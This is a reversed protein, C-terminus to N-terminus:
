IFEPMSTAISHKFKIYFKGGINYIPLPLYDLLNKISCCLFKPNHPETLDHARIEPVYESNLIKVMVYIESSLTILSFLIEGFEYEDIYEGINIVVVDGRKYSTGKVTINYSMNVDTMEELNAEKAANRIATNYLSCNFESSKEVEICSDFFDGTGLYSQMLQHRVSLSLLINKFNPSSRICRRFYSHKSEGRMTWVLLLPGFQRILWPYHQMFHHKPRLPVGPFFKIRQKFYEKIIDELHWLQRETIKPSCVLEVIEQLILFFNWVHHNKIKDFIIFPLNRLLCWNQVAHGGIKNLKLPLSNPKDSRDYGKYKFSGIRKNLTDLSFWNLQVLQKLILALDYQIVGEFLDHGLCPPLGPNCVHFYRLENFPSDVKVGHRFKLNPHRKLHELDNVYSDVTRKPVREDSIPKTKFWQKRQILCYRCFYVGSSFNESFGGICHSGLNDGLICLLGGKLPTEFGDVEIGIELQKLDAILRSFVKQMGFEKFDNEFCLLVLQMPDVKFRSHPPVNGLVLYVGLIKYKMKASGLPNVIQFADQYLIIVIADPNSKFFKNKQYVAGDAYDSYLRNNTSEPISFNSMNKGKFKLKLSEIIPVYYYYRDENSSNRGLKVSEPEIYDFNQKYYEKRTHNTRLPGYKQASTFPDSKFLENCVPKVIEEALGAVSCIQELKDKLYEKGLENINNMENVIFQITSAPVLCKAELKLYFNALNRLYNNEDWQETDNKTEASRSLDNDVLGSDSNDSVSPIPSDNVSDANSLSEKKHYRSIHTSFSTVNIIKKKCNEYPCVMEEGAELHKKYHARLKSSDLYKQCLNLPCVFSLLSGDPNNEQTSRQCDTHDRSLHSTFSSYKIFSRTCNQLGCQFYANTSHIRFHRIYGIITTKQALCINCTYM